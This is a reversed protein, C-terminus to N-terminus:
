QDHDAQLAPESRSRRREWTPTGFVLRHALQGLDDCSLAEQLYRLFGIPGPRQGIGASWRLYRLGIDPLRGFPRRPPAIRLRYELRDIRSVPLCRLREIVEVPITGSLFNRLYQLAESLPLALRRREASRVLRDWGIEAAASDLIAAADAVWRLPPVREWRVGHACAHFLQDTSGLVHLEIDRLKVTVAGQWFDDDADPACCDILAHWHLDLEAGNSLVFPMAHRRRIREPHLGLRPKWGLGALLAIAREAAQTRVLLDLDSMPRVGVDGYYKAILAAGKLVITEIGAREFHPLLATLERMHLQNQYWSYRYVGKLKNTLFDKFGERELNRYVQPLLRFSGADLREIDGTEKWREWAAVASQGRFLAARLLLEQQCSPWCGGQETSAFRAAIESANATV